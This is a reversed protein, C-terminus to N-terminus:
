EPLDAASPGLADPFAEGTTAAPEESDPTALVSFDAL